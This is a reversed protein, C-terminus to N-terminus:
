TITSYSVLLLILVLLALSLPHEKIKGGAKVFREYRIAAILAPITGLAFLGYIAIDSIDTGHKQAWLAASFEMVISGGILWWNKPPPLPAPETPRSTKPKSAM